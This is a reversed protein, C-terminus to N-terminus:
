AAGESDARDALYTSLDPVARAVRSFGLVEAIRRMHGACRGFLDLDITEGVLAAAEMVELQIALTSFKSIMQRQVESTNEEGGMDSLVAGRIAEYRRFPRTRRDLGDISLLSSVPSTTPEPRASLDPTDSM